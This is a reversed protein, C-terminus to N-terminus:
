ETDDPLPHLPTPLPPPPTLAARPLRLPTWDPPPRARSTLRRLRRNSLPSAHLLQAQPLSADRAHIPPLRHVRSRRDAPTQVRGSQFMLVNPCDSRALN